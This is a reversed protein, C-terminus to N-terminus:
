IEEDMRENGEGDRQGCIGREGRVGIGGDREEERWGQTGRKECTLFPLVPPGVGYPPWCRDPDMSIPLYM